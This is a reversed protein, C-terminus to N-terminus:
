KLIVMTRTRVEDGVRLRCFYVGSPAVSGSRDTGNWFASHIGPGQRAGQLTHVLRGSVDYIALDIAGAGDSPVVYDIRTGTSFPNPANQGLFLTAL